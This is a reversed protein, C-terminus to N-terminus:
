LGLEMLQQVSVDFFGGPFSIKKGNDDIYYGDNGIRIKQFQTNEDEKYHIVIDDKSIKKKYVQYRLSNILHECHTEIILQIKKSALFSFFEGLRSQAKPHLHIEPNEIIVVDGPKALFCLILVKVLFSMGTGVNFPNVEGLEKQQFFTKCVDGTVIEALFSNRSETIYSQWCNVAVPTTLIVGLQSKIEESLDNRLKKDFFLKRLSDFVKLRVLKNEPELFNQLNIVANITENFMHDNQCLGFLYDCDEFTPEFNVKQALRILYAGFLFEGRDGVKYERSFRSLDEIGIRNSSLYYLSEEFELNEEHMNDFNSNSCTYTETEDSLDFQFPIDQYKSVANYMREKNKPNCNRAAILISQLVTSKGSSNKGALITLQGFELKEDELCKFKKIHINKLMHVELSTSHRFQQSTQKAAYFKGCM